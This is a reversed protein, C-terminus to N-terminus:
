EGVRQLWVGKVFGQLVIKVDGNCMNCGLQSGTKPDAIDAVTTSSSAPAEASVRDPGPAGGGGWIAASSSSQVQEAPEKSEKTKIFYGSLTKRPPRGAEASQGPELVPKTASERSPVAGAAAVAATERETPSAIRLRRRKGTMCDVEVRADLHLECKREGVTCPVHLKQGAGAVRLCELVKQDCPHWGSEDEVEWCALAAAALDAVTAPM